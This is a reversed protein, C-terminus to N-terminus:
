PQTVMRTGSLCSRFGTAETADQDGVPTRKTTRMDAPDDTGFSGGRMVMRLGNMRTNTPAGEFYPIYKSATWEEANGAMDLAGWPSAGPPYSGVSVPGGSGGVGLGVSHRCLSADWNDGWPYAKGGAANEWERETPLRLGAWKLYAAADNSTLHVVPFNDASPRGDGKPNRWNAGPVSRLRHDRCVFSSGKREADTTYGTAEVFRRYQAVTVETKSVYYYPLVLNFTHRPNDSGGVAGIPVVGGAVRVLVSQDKKWNLQDPVQYVLNLLTALSQLSADPLTLDKSWLLNNKKPDLLALGPSPAGALTDMRAVQPADLPAASWDGRFLAELKSEVELVGPDQDSGVLVLRPPDSFPKSTKIGLQQDLAAMLPGNQSYTQSWLIRSPLGKGNLAIVCLRPVEPAAMGLVKLSRAHDAIAVDYVMVKKELQAQAFHGVARREKLVEVLQRHADAVSPTRSDWNM